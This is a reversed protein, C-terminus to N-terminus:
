DTWPLPLDIVPRSMKNNIHEIVSQEIDQKSIGNSWCWQLVQDKTLQAYPTFSGDPSPFSCSGYATETFESDNGNCRWFATIVVDTYQGDQPKCRMGDIVWTIQTAM